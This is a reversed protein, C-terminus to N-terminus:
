WLLFFISKSRPITKQQLIHYENYEGYMDKWTSFTILGAFAEKQRLEVRAEEKTMRKTLMDQVSTNRYDAIITAWDVHEPVHILNCMQQHSMLRKSHSLEIAIVDNPNSVAGSIWERAYKQSKMTNCHEGRGQFTEGWDYIIRVMGRKRVVHAANDDSGGHKWPIIEVYESIDSKSLLLSDLKSQTCNYRLSYIVEYVDPTGSQKMDNVILEECTLTSTEDQIFEKTEIEPVLEDIRRLARRWQKGRGLDVNWYKNAWFSNDACTYQYIVRRGIESGIITNYSTLPPSNNTPVDYNSYSAGFGFSSTQHLLLGFQWLVFLLLLILLSIITWSRCPKRRSRGVLRRKQM